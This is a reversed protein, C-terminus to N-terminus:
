SQHGKKYCTSTLFFTTEAEFAQTSGLITTNNMGLSNFSFIKYKKICMTNKYNM